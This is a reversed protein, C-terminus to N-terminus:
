AQPIIKTITGVDVGICLDKCILKELLEACERDKSATEDLMQQCAIIDTDKGSNHKELYSFFDLVTPGCGAPWLLDVKVEKQLKKGSIGFVMYPDFAIQLYRKIVEDDKYKKLVAQKHLRSNSEMIENVFDRFHMLTRM